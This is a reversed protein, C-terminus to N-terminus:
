SVAWVGRTIYILKEKAQLENTVKMATNFCAGMRGALMKTTVIKGKNENLFSGVIDKSKAITQREPMEELDKIIKKLCKYCYFGRLFDTDAESPCIECQM